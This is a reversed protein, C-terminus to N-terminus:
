VGQRKRRERASEWIAALGLAALMMLPGYRMRYLTGVNPTVCAYIVVFFACFATILWFGPRTRWRRAALPLGIILLPYLMLMEVGAVFRMAAAGPSAGPATWQTPFPALFGIQIARPLYALLDQASHFQLDLDIMSGASKYDASLYGRRAIALRLFARDVFAPLDESPQWPKGNISEAPAATPTAGAALAPVVPELRMDRPAFGLITVVGVLACLVAACHPAALTKRRANILAVPIAILAFIVTIVQMLQFAYPRAIGAVLIGAALLGVGYRLARSDPRACAVRLVMTFGLLAALMGAFFYGSKQIQAVWQLSSPFGVWLAGGAFAIKRDVDLERLLRMVIVGTTAHLAANIPILAWPAPTLLYYFPVALGAATQGQPALSWASWGSQRISDAVGSAIAHYSVSDGGILLGNGAHLAPAFVPLALFQVFMSAGASFLAFGMWAVLMPKERAFQSFSSFGMVGFGSGALQKSLKVM